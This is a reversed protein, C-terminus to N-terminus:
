FDFTFGVFVVIVGVSTLGFLVYNFAEGSFAGTITLIFSLFCVVAGVLVLVLGKSRRRANRLTYVEAVIEQAFRRDHGKDVLQQEIQERSTGDELMRLVYQGPSENKLNNDM